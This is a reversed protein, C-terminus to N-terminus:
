QQCSSMMCPSRRVPRGPPFLEAGPEGGCWDQILQDRCSDKVDGRQHRVPLAVFSAAVFLSVNAVIKNDHHVVVGSLFILQSGNLYVCSGVCLSLSIQLKHRFVLSMKEEKLALKVKNFNNNFGEVIFTIEHSELAAFTIKMKERQTIKKEARM